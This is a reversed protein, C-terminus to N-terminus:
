RSLPHRVGHDARACAFPGPSVPEVTVGPHGPPLLFWREGGPATVGLLLHAGGDAGAALGADGDARLDGASADSGYVGAGGLAIAAYARGEALVPLVAEAVPGPCCALLATVAATSAVPGPTLAGALTAVGVVM